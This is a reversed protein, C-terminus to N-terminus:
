NNITFETINIKDLSLVINNTVVKKIVYFLVLNSLSCFDEFKRSSIIVRTVDTFLIPLAVSNTRLSLDNIYITYL